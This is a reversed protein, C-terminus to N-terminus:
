SVYLTKKSLNDADIAAISETLVLKIEVRVFIYVNYELVPCFSFLDLPMLFEEWTGQQYSKHPQQGSHLSQVHM